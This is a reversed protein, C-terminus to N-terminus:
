VCVCVCVCVCVSVCVCVYKGAVHCSENVNQTQWQKQAYLICLYVRTNNM